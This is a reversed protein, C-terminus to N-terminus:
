SDAQQSKGSAGASIPACSGVSSKDALQIRVGVPILIDDYCVSVGVASLEGCCLFAASPRTKPQRSSSCRYARCRPAGTAAGAQDADPFEQRGEPLLKRVSIDDPLKFQNRVAERLTEEDIQQYLQDLRDERASASDLLIDVAALVM